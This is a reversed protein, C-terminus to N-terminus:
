RQCPTAVALPLFPGIGEELGYRAVCSCMPTYMREPALALDVALVPSMYCNSRPKRRNETFTPSGDCRRAFVAEVREAGTHCARIKGARRPTVRSDGPKGSPSDRMRMHPGGSQPAAHATRLLSARQHPPASRTSAMKILSQTSARARPPKLSPMKPTFCRM